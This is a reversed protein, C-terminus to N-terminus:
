QAPKGTLQLYMDFFIAPIVHYWVTSMAFMTKNTELYFKPMAINKVSISKLSERYFDEELWLDVTFPNKTSSVCNYIKRFLTKFLKKVYM